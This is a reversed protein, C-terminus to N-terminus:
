EKERLATEVVTGCEPCRDPSARLDYGCTKCTGPRPRRKEILHMTIGSVFVTAQVIGLWIAFLGLLSRWYIRWFHGDFSARYRELDGLSKADLKGSRLQTQELESIRAETWWKRHELSTGVYIAPNYGGLKITSWATTYHEACAIPWGFRRVYDHREILHGRTDVQPQRALDEHKNLLLISAGTAFGAFFVVRFTRAVAEWSIIRKRHM